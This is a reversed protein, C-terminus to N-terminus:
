ETGAETETEDMAGQEPGVVTVGILERASNYVGFAFAGSELKLDWIFPRQNAGQGGLPRVTAYAGEPLEVITAEATAVDWTVIGTGPPQGTRRANAFARGILPMVGFPRRGQQALQNIGQGLEVRLFGEPLPLLTSTGAELDVVLLGENGPFPNIQIGRPNTRPEGSTAMSVITSQSAINQTLQNNFPIGVTVPTEAANDPFTIERFTETTGDFVHIKTSAKLPVDRAGDGFYLYSNSTGKLWADLKVGEDVMVQSVEQTVTDFLVLRDGTCIQGDRPEAFDTMAESSGVIAITRTAPIRLWRVAAICNAAYVGSPFEVATVTMSATPESETEMAADTSTNTSVGAADEAETEPEPLTVAVAMVGDQMGDTKRIGVYVATAGTFGGTAPALSVGQFVGQANQRRPPSIPDWGDPFAVKTVVSADGDFLVVHPRTTDDDAAPGMFRVRYGGGFNANGQAVQVSLGDVEDPLAPFSPAEDVETGSLDVVMNGTEGSESEPRELRLTSSSGLGIQLRDAGGGILATETTGAASDVLLLQETLGAAPATAPAILAALVGSNTAAEFPRYQQAPNPANPFSPFICETLATTTQRRFDLLHVGPYCGQEDDVNGSLAVYYPNLDTMQIVDTSTFGEPVAIHRAVPAGVPGMVGSAGQNGSLWRFVETSGALEPVTFTMEYVGVLQTSPSVSADAVPIGGVFARQTAELEYTTNEAGASGTVLAPTLAGIGAAFVRLRSAASLAAEAAVVTGTASPRVGPSGLAIPAASEAPETPPDTPPAASEAIPVSTGDHRILNVNIEAVFFGVASSDIEGQRVVVEARGAEIEWPIQANIQTPSVFFLPAATENILVQVAPDGLSTPLPLTDATVEAEALGEGVIALIGGRAVVPVGDEFTVGNAVGRATFSPEGAASSATALIVPIILFLRM